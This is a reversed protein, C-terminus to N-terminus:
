HPVRPHVRNVIWLAAIAVVLCLVALVIDSYGDM